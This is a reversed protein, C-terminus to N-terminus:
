LLRLSIGVSKSLCLLSLIQVSLFFFYLCLDVLVCLFDFLIYLFISLCFSLCASILYFCFNFSLYHCFALFLCISLYINVLSYLCYKSSLFLSVYLYVSSILSMCFSEFTRNSITQTKKSVPALDISKFRYQHRFRYKYFYFFSWNIIPNAMLVLCM